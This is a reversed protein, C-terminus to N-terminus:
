VRRRDQRELDRRLLAMNARNAKWFVDIVTGVLPISGFVTDGAVNAAMRVLTRKRAGMRYAQFIIYASMGGSALDGVGPVLGLISDLGFRLGLFRFRADLLNALRDLEATSPPASARAGSSAAPRLTLTTPAMSYEGEASFITIGRGSNWDRAVAFPSAAAAASGVTAAVLDAAGCRVSASRVNAAGRELLGAWRAGPGASTRSGTSKFTHGFLQRLNTEEATM